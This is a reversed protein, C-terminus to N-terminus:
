PVEVAIGTLNQASPPDFQMSIVPPADGTRCAIPVAEIMAVLAVFSTVLKEAGETEHGVQSTGVTVVLVVVGDNVTAALVIGADIPPV